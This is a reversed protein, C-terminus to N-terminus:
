GALKAVCYRLPEILKQTRENLLKIVCRVVTFDRMRLTLKTLAEASKAPLKHAILTYLWFQSQSRTVTLLLHWVCKDAAKMEAHGTAMITIIAESFRLSLHM